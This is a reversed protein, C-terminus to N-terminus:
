ICAISRWSTPRTVLSKLRATVGATTEHMQRWGKRSFRRSPRCSIAGAAPHAAPQESCSRESSIRISGHMTESQCGTLLLMVHLIVSQCQEGARDGVAGVEATLLIAAQPLRGTACAAGTSCCAGEEPRHLGFAGTLDGFSRLAAPKRAKWLRAQDGCTTCGNLAAATSATAAGCDDISTCSRPSSTSSAADTPWGTCRGGSSWLITLRQPILRSRCVTQCCLITRVRARESPRRVHARDPIRWLSM